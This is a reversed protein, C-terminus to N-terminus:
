FGGRAAEANFEEVSLEDLVRGPQRRPELDATTLAFPEETLRERIDKRGLVRSPRFLPEAQRDACPQPRVKSRKHMVRDQGASGEIASVERFLCRPREDIFVHGADVVRM